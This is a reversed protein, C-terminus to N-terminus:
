QGTISQHGGQNYDNSEKMYIGLYHLIYMGVRCNSNLKVTPCLYELLGAIGHGNKLCLVLAFKRLLAFSYLGFVHM